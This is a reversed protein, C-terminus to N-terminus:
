LELIRTLIEYAEGRTLPGNLDKKYKLKGTDILKKESGYGWHEKQWNINLEFHPRDPSQWRGGWLLGCSEGIEGLRSWPGSYTPNGNLDLFAVDVAMGDQHRSHTTWTVKPRFFENEPTGPYDRRGFAWLYKQRMASRYSETVM